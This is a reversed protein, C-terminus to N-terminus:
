IAEKRREVMDLFSEIRTRLGEGSQHEDLLIQTIPPTKVRRLVLENALCDSGCPFATLLIIGDVKGAALHIAGLIERNLTWYLDKSIQGAAKACATRDFAEIFIPVAGLNRILDAVAGGLRPDYTIYSQAAVLIKPARARLHVRNQLFRRLDAEQQRNQAVRYARAAALPSKGLTKALQLFALLEASHSASKREYTLLEVGGFTAQVTDPLGWFRVCFEDQKGLRELRPVLLVDCCDRLSAAHGMYLKLPLCSEDVALARGTTLHSGITENSVLYPIDLEQFFTEWLTGYRHYALARPIGITM